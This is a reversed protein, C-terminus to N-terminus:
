EQQRNAKKMFLGATLSCFILLTGMIADGAAALYIPGPLAVLKASTLLFLVALVKTVIILDVIRHKNQLDTIPILYFLSLCFLFLGAQKVLFLNDVHVGFFFSYFADTFFFIFSGLIMSHLGVLFVCLGLRKVKKDAHLFPVEVRDLTDVQEHNM